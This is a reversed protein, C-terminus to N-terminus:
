HRPTSLLKKNLHEYHNIGRGIDFADVCALVRMKGILRPFVDRALDRDEQRIYDYFEKKAFLIGAWALSGNNSKEHFSVVNKQKDVKLVGASSDEPPDFCVLGAVINDPMSKMKQAFYQLYYGKFIDGSFTDTYAVMFDSATDGHWFLTGATGLLKGREDIINPTYGTNLFYKDLWDEVKDACHHLNVFVNDFCEAKFVTDLWWKLMPKGGVPLLCKQVDNTLPRLRMGNGAAFLYAQTM